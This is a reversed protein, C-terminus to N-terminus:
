TSLSVTQIWIVYNHKKEYKAKVNDYWFEYM